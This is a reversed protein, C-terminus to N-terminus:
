PLVHILLVTNHSKKNVCSLYFIDALGVVHAHDAAHGRIRGQDGLFAPIKFFHDFLDGGDHVTRDAALDLRGGRGGLTHDFFAPLNSGDM